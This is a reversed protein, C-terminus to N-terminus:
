PVGAMFDYVHFGRECIWSSRGGQVSGWAQKPLYQSLNSCLSVWSGVEAELQQQQDEFLNQNIANQDPTIEERFMANGFM